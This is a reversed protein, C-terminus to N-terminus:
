SYCSFSRTVALEKSLGMPNWDARIMSRKNLFDQVEALMHQNQQPFLDPSRSTLSCSAPFCAPQQQAQQAVETV